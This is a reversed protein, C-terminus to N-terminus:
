RASRPPAKPPAPPGCGGSSRRSIQTGERDEDQDRVDPSLRVIQGSQAGRDEEARPNRVREAVQRPDEVQAGDDEKHSPETIEQDQALEESPLAEHILTRQAASRGVCDHGEKVATQPWM